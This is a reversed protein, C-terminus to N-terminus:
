IRITVVGCLIKVNRNKLKSEGVRASRSFTVYHHGIVIINDLLIVIGWPMNTGM